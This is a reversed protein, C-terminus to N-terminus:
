KQTNETNNIVPVYFYKPSTKWGADGQRPHADHHCIVVIAIVNRTKETLSFFSSCMRKKDHYIINGPRLKLSFKSTLHISEHCCSVFGDGFGEQNGGWLSAGHDWPEVSSWVIEARPHNRAPSTPLTSSYAHFQTIFTFPSCQNNRCPHIKVGSVEAPERPWCAYGCWTERFKHTM